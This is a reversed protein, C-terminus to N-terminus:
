ASPPGRLLYGGPRIDQEASVKESGSRPGISITLLHTQTGSASALNGNAGPGKFAALSWNPAISSPVWGVLDVVTLM